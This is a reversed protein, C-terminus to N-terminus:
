RQQLRQVLDRPLAAREAPTNIPFVVPEAKGSEQVALSLAGNCCRLEVAGGPYDLSLSLQVDQGQLWTSCGSPVSRALTLLEMMDAQVQQMSMRYPLRALQIRLRSRAQAFQQQEEVTLEATAVPQPEVPASDPRAALEVLATRLQGGRRYRVRLVDGPAYGSLVEKLAAVQPTPMGQVSEIVDGPMLGAAHAPTHEAVRRVIVGQGASEGAPVVGFVVAGGAAQLLPLCFLLLCLIVTHQKTM